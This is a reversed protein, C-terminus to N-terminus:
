YQYSSLHLSEPSKIVQNKTKQNKLKMAENTKQNKLLAQALCSKTIKGIFKSRRSDMNRNKCKKRGPIGLMWMM